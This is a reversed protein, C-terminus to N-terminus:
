LSLLFKQSPTGNPFPYIVSNNLIEWGHQLTKRIWHLKRLSAIFLPLLTFFLKVEVYKLLWHAREIIKPTNIIYAAYLGYANPSFALWENANSM